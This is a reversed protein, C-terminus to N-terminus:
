AAPTITITLAENLVYAHACGCNNVETPERHFGNPTITVATPVGTQGAFIVDFTETFSEVNPNCGCSNAPTTITGQATIPIFVTTGNFIPTGATFTVNATAKNTSNVSYPRCLQQKITVLVDLTNAVAAAGLGAPQVYVAM